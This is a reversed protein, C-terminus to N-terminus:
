KENNQEKENYCKKWNKVTPHEIKNRKKRSINCLEELIKFKKDSLDSLKRFLPKISILIIKRIFGKHKYALEGMNDIKKNIIVQKEHLKSCLENLEKESRM